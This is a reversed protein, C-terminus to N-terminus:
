EDWVHLSRLLIYKQLIKLGMGLKEYYENGM